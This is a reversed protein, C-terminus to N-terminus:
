KLIKGSGALAPLGPSRHRRFGEQVVELAKDPLDFAPLDAEAVLAAEAADSGARVEGGLYECLYDVIVYHYRVEGGTEREIRDFVTLVELPRVALDTEEKMERRAAERIDEGWDVHGCPVCWRGSWPGSNRRGLLISDGELLVVAVGVTPNRYSIRGCTLCRRHM